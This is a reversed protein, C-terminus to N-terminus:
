YRKRQTKWKRLNRVRYSDHLDKLFGLVVVRLRVCLCVRVCVCCVRCRASAISTTHTRTGAHQGSIILQRINKKIRKEGKMYM